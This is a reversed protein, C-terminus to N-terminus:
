DFAVNDYLKRILDNMLDELITNENETIFEKISNYKWNYENKVEYFRFMIEMDGNEKFSIVREYRVGQEIGYNQSFRMAIKLPIIWRSQWIVIIEENDLLM